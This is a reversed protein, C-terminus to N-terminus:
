CGVMSMKITAEDAAVGTETVWLHSFQAAAQFWTTRAALNRYTPMMPLAVAIRAAPDEERWRIVDFLADKFWHQAQTYPRTRQTPEPFGKVTVWLAIGDRELKVDKGREKSATNAQRLVSWGERVLFDVVAAQVNGEWSWPRSREREGLEVV